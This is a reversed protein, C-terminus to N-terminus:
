RFTAHLCTSYRLHTLFEEKEAPKLYDISSAKKEHFTKNRFSYVPKKRKM